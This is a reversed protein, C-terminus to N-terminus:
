PEDEIQEPVPPLEGRHPHVGNGSHDPERPNNGREFEGEPPLRPNTVPGPPAPRDQPSIEPRM